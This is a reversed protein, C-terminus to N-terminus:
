GSYTSRKRRHHGAMCRRYIGFAISSGDSSWSPIGQDAESPSLAKVEGGSSPILYINWPKGRTRGRLTLWKEDPSWSLGDAEFPPFTIQSKGSGDPNAKWVTLDPYDIYAVSDGSKSFSVWTAAIGGLFPVFEKLDRDYRVLEGRRETGFAFIERGDASVAPSSYDLAGSTLRVPSDSDRRFLDRRKSLAWLDTRGDRTSQFVFSNGDPMWRGCCEGPLNNWGQLLQHLNSGDARVEWISQRVDGNQLLKKEAFRITKGDPSWDPSDVAGSLEAIRRCQTGDTNAVFLLKATRYCDATQKPVM